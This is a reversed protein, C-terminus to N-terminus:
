VVKKLHGTKTSKQAILFSQQLELWRESEKNVANELAEQNETLFQAINLHFNILDEVSGSVLRVKDDAVDLTVALKPMPKKLEAKPVFASVQVSFPEPFDISLQKSILIAKETKKGARLKIHASQRM